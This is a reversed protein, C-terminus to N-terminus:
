MLNRKRCTQKRNIKMGISLGNQSAAEIEAGSILVTQNQVVGFPTDGEPDLDVLKILAGAPNSSGDLPYSRVTEKLMPAGTSFDTYQYSPCGYFAVKFNRGTLTGHDAIAWQFTLQYDKSSDWKDELDLTIISKVSEYAWGVSLVSSRAPSSEEPWRNAAKDTSFVGVSLDGEEAGM